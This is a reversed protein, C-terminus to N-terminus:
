ESDFYSTDEEGELAPIFEAKQRLLNTWDLGDFFPQDKVISVGSGICTCLTAVDHFNTYLQIHNSCEHMVTYVGYQGAKPHMVNCHVHIKSCLVVLQFGVWCCKQDVFNCLIILCCLRKM